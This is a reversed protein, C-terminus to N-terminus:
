VCRRADSGSGVPPVAPYISQRAKLAQLTRLLMQLVQAQEADGMFRSKAGTKMRQIRLEFDAIRANLRCQEDAATM